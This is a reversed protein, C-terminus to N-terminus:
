LGSKISMSYQYGEIILDCRSLNGTCSKSYNIIAFPSLLTWNPRYDYEHNVFRVVM